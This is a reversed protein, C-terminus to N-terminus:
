NAWTTHTSVRAAGVFKWGDPFKQVHIKEIIVDKVPRGGSQTTSAV